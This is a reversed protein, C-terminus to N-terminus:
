LEERYWEKYKPVIDDMIGRERANEMRSRIYFEPSRGGRSDMFQFAVLVSDAAEMLSHELDGSDLSERAEDAQHALAEVWFDDNSHLDGYDFERVFERIESVLDDEAM